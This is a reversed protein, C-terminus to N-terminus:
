TYHNQLHCEYYVNIRVNHLASFSLHSSFVVFNLRIYNTQIYKFHSM